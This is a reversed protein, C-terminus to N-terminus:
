IGQADAALWRTFASVELNRSVGFAVFLVGFAVWLWRPVSVRPLPRNTMTTVTWVTFAAAVLPVLGVWLVNHDLARAVDGRALAATARTAGCFPCDVGLIFKSPCLPVGSDDPNWLAVGLTAAAALSGVAVPMWRLLGGGQHYQHYRDAPPQGGWDDVPLVVQADPSAATTGFADRTVVTM